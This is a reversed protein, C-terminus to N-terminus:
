PYTLKRVTTTNREMCSEQTQKQLASTPLQLGFIYVMVCVYLNGYMPMCLYMHM